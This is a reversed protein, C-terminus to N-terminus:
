PVIDVMNSVGFLAAHLMDGFAAALDSNAVGFGADASASSDTGVVIAIDDSGLNAPGTGGADALDGFTGTSTSVISALDGNGFGADASGLNGFVTASDGSGHGAFAVSNTGNASAYDFSGDTAIAATHGIASDGVATASFFNGGTALAYSNTGNAFASDFFGGTGDPCELFGCGAAGANAFSGNGIAIAIDGIGSTATATNGATPFLDMGDISIKFDDASAVGPPSALAAGIGLGVALLGLRGLGRSRLM